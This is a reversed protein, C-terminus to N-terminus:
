VRPEKAAGAGADLSRYLHDAADALRDFDRRALHVTRWPSAAQARTPLGRLLPQLAGFATAVAPGLRDAVARRLDGDSLAALPDDIQLAAGLRRNVSDRIVAAPLAFSRRTARRDLAAVLAAPDPAGDEHPAVRTWGGDLTSPRRPPLLRLAILAVAVALVVASIRMASSAMYYDSLGTLFANLQRLGAAIGTEGDLPRSPRGALGSGGTVIVVRRAGLYRLLNGAFELNGELELMRNILVSPDALAVFRGTGLEGAVVVVEGAGFGFVPTPGDVTTFLAPHNTTLESVGAALPHGPALARAVPLALNDEHYREARLGVARQRVLGLESLAPTATGFDDGLVLRGGNALFAAVHDDELTHTPYLIVLADGPGIDDWRLAPRTVVELGLGRALAAFSALGNWEASSLDYDAGAPSDAAAPTAALAVAAVLALRGAARSV